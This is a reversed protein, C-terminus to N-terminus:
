SEDSAHVDAFLTATPVLGVGQLTQKRDMYSCPPFATRLLLRQKDGLRMDEEELIRKLADQLDGVTHSPEMRLILRQRGWLKVQLRATPLAPDRGAELLSLEKKGSGDGPFSVTRHACSGSSRRHIAMGRAPLLRDGGSNLDEDRHAFDRLWAEFTHSTRDVVKMSVGDPHETKLVYPFYGDLIDRLIQQAMPEGFAHFVLRGLKVGDSFITLPIPLTDDAVLRAQVGGGVLDKEIRVGQRDVNSNLDEVCSELAQIDVNAVASMLLVRDKATPTESCAAESACGSSPQGLDALGAPSEGATGVWTLGYDCLFQMMEEAQRKYHDRETRLLRVEQERCPQADSSAETPTRRRLIDLETRLQDIEQSQRSLKAAQVSNLKEAQSLRITMNSSSGSATSHSAQQQHHQQQQVICPTWSKPMPRGSAIAGAAVAAASSRSPLPVAPGAIDSAPIARRSPPLKPRRCAATSGVTALHARMLLLPRASRSPSPALAQAASGPPPTRPKPPADAAEPAASAAEVTLTRSSSRQRRGGASGPRRWHPEICCERPAQDIQLSETSPLQLSGDGQRALWLGAPSHWGKSCARCARGQESM